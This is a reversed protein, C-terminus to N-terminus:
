YSNDIGGYFDIMDVTIVGSTIIFYLPVWLLITILTVWKVKRGLQANVPSSAHTGPVIEGKDGQTRLGIPLVIFLTMFWIVAFLVAAASITM